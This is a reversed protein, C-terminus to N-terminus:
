EGNRQRSRIKNFNYNQVAQEIKLRNRVHIPFHTGNKLICCNDAFNAIHDANIAIGKNILIFRPDNNTQQMFQTVTMRCRLTKGDATEVNLYHADSVASFIEEFFVRVTKRDIYFEIYESSSPLEKLVENLVETVRKESFPKTIYEFAHCSFADPMHEKSSTLFILICNRDLDRLTKAASIGNTGNMYIDMFVVSYCKNKLSCLFDEATDFTETKINLKNEESFSRCIDEMKELYSLDDDVIAVNM